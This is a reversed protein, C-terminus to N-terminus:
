VLMSQMADLSADHHTPAAIVGDSDGCDDGADAGLFAIAETVLVDPDFRGGDGGSLIDAQILIADSYVVGDVYAGTGLTDVDVIAALNILANSGTTVQWNATQDDLIAAQAIAVQDADGLVNLQRVYHLDFISGTVILVSLGSMGAYDADSLFGSPMAPRDGDEADELAQQYHSPLGLAWGGAGINSISAGNYLLNGGTSVSGAYGDGSIFDDDLLVNSQVIFNADYLTGGIIILDYYTGLASFSTINQALDAGTVFNSQSGTSNLVHIDNDYIFTAQVLWQAFVLDGQVVTVSWNSPGAETDGSRTSSAIDLQSHTFTAVNLAMTPPAVSAAIEGVLTDQDSVCNSQVIVDLQRVDGQVGIVGTLMGSNSLQAVNVLLNGGAMLDLSAEAGSSAEHQVTEEAPEPTDQPQFPEPLLDDLLPAEEAMEGNVYIGSLTDGSAVLHDPAFDDAAITQQVAIVFDGMSSVDSPVDLASFPNVAVTDALMEALRPTVTLDVLPRDAGGLDLVDNDELFIQQKVVFLVEGPDPGLDPGAERHVYGIVGSPLSKHSPESDDQEAPRKAPKPELKIRAPDIPSHGYFEYPHPTHEVGPQFYKIAHPQIVDLEHLRLAEEDPVENERYRFTLLEHRLRATEESFEWHGIFHAIIEDYPPLYAYM